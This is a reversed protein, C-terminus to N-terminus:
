IYDEAIFCLILVPIFAFALLFSLGFSFTDGMQFAVLCNALLAVLLLLGLFFICASFDLANLFNKMISFILPKLISTRQENEKYM